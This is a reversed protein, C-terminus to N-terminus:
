TQGVQAIAAPGRPRRLGFSHTCELRATSINIGFQIGDLDRSLVSFCSRTLLVSARARVILTRRTHRLSTQNPNEDGPVVKRGFPYAVDHQRVRLGPAALHRVDVHVHLVEVAGVQECRHPFALGASSHFGLSKDKIRRHITTSSM